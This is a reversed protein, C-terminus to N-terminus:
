GSVPLVVSVEDDMVARYRELLSDLAERQRVLSTWCRRLYREGKPTIAYVRRPPGVHSVDWTSVTLGENEMTRLMRYISASYRTDPTDFGVESLREVIEYGHSDHEALLVLIAPRAQLSHRFEFGAQGEVTNRPDKNM